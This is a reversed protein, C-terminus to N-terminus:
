AAPMQLSRTGNPGGSCAATVSAALGQLRAHAKPAPDQDRTVRMVPKAAADALENGATGNHGRVWGPSVQARHRRHLSVRRRVLEVPLSDWGSVKRGAWWRGAARSDTLGLLPVGLCGLLDVAACMAAAEAADPNRGGRVSRPLVFAVCLGLEPVVISASSVAPRSPNVEVSADTFVTLSRARVPAHLAESGSVM